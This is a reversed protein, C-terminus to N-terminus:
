KIAQNARSPEITKGAKFDYLLRSVESNEAIDFLAKGV